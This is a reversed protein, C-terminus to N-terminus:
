GGSKRIITKPHVNEWRERYYHGVSRDVNSSLFLEGPDYVAVTGGWSRGGYTNITIPTDILKRREEHTM